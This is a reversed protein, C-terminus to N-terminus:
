KDKIKRVKIPGAVKEIKINRTNIGNNEPKCESFNKFM